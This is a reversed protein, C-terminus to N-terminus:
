CGDLILAAQFAHRRSDPYRAARASPNERAAPRIGTHKQMPKARVINKSGWWGRGTPAHQPNACATRVASKRPPPNGAPQHCMEPFITGGALPRGLPV